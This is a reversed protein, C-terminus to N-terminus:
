SLLRHVSDARALVAGDGDRAEVTLFLMTRTKRAVSAAIAGAEGSQAYTITVSILEARSEAERAALDELHRVLRAALDAGSM